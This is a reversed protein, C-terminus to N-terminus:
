FLAFECNDILWTWVQLSPAKKPILYLHVIEGTLLYNLDFNTVSLCVFEKVSYVPSHPNKRESLNAVEMRAESLPPYSELPFKCILSSLNHSHTHTHSHPSLSLSLNHSCTHTHTLTLLSHPLSFSLCSSHCQCSLFLNSKTGLVVKLAM